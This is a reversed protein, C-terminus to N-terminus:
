SITDSASNLCPPFPPVAPRARSQGPTVVLIVGWNRESRDGEIEYISIESVAGSEKCARINQGSGEKTLEEIALLEKSM